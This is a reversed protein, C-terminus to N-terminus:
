PLKWIGSMQEVVVSTKTEIPMDIADFVRKGYIQNVVDAISSATSYGHCVVLVRTNLGHIREQNQCIKLLLLLQEVSELTLELHKEFLSSIEEMIGYERRCEGQLYQQLEWLEERDKLMRKSEGVNDRMRNYIIRSMVLAFNSSLSADYRQNMEQFIQTLIQETVRIKENSYNREFIMYDFYSNVTERNKKMMAEFSLEGQKMQRYSELLNQHLLQEKDSNVRVNLQEIDLFKSDKGPKGMFVGSNDSLRTGRFFEEPLHAVQVSLRKEEENGQFANMCSAQVCAKLQSINREYHYNLLLELARRSIRIPCHIRLSEQKYYYIIMQEKEALSREELAPLHVIVPIKELLVRSMTEFNSLATSFFIRRGEMHMAIRDQQERSLCNIDKFYIMDSNEAGLLGRNNEDGFLIKEAQRPENVYSRCSFLRFKCDESQIVGQDVAYEYSLKALLSKGTGEEGAFLLPLGSPPYNVAM